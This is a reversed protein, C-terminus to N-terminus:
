RVDREGPSYETTGSGTSSNAESPLSTTSSPLLVHWRKHTHNYIARIGGQLRFTETHDDCDAPLRNHPNYGDQISWVGRQNRLAVGSLLIFDMPQTSAHDEHVESSQLLIVKLLSNYFLVFCFLLFSVLGAM